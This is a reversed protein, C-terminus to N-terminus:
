YFKTYGQNVEISKQEVAILKWLKKNELIKIKLVCFLLKLIRVQLIYDNEEHFHLTTTLVPEVLEMSGTSKQFFCMLVQSIALIILISDTLKRFTSVSSGTM